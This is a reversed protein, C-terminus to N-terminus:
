AHDTGKEEPPDPASPVPPIRRNQQGLEHRRSPPHPAGAARRAPKARGASSMEPRERSSRRPLGAPAHSVADLLASYSAVLARREAALRADTPDCGAAVWDDSLDVAEARWHAAARMAPRPASYVECYLDVLATELEARSAADDRQRERHIRWWRVELEAARHPDFDLDSHAVVLRYFRLMSARAAEPDNDPVPAWAQNARLVHWAAVLTRRPGLGFGAGVMGVFARLARPWRRRYYSAWATTELRGLTVPDFDRPSHRSAM